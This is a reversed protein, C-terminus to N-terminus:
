VPYAPVRQASGDRPNVVLIGREGQTCFVARGARKALERAGAEVDGNGVAQACEAQNPKISVSRFQGIRERSDALILKDPSAEGLAAVRDRVKATVVGCNEDSVQDMVLLADLQGFVDGLGRLVQEEAAAPLATRNKIDLRNLERAPQGHENLMP